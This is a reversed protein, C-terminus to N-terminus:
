MIGLLKSLENVEKDVEKDLDFVKNIALIEYDIFEIDNLSLDEYDEYYIIPQEEIINPFCYQKIEPEKYEEQVEENVKKKEKIMENFHFMAVVAAILSAYSLIFIYISYMSKHQKNNSKM